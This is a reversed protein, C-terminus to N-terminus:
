KAEEVNDGIDVLKGHIIVLLDGKDTVGIRDEWNADSGGEEEDMVSEEGPETINSEYESDRSTTTTTTASRANPKPTAPENFSNSNASPSPRSDRLFFGHLRLGQQAAASTIARALASKEITGVEFEHELCKLVDFAIGAMKKKDRWGKWLWYKTQCGRVFQLIFRAEVGAQTLESHHVLERQAKGEEKELIKAVMNVLKAKDAKSDKDIKRGELYDAWAELQPPETLWAKLWILYNEDDYGM